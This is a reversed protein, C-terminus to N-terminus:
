RNSRRRYIIREPANADRAMIVRIRRDRLEYVVALSRGDETRGIVGRRGSRTAKRARHPDTVAEEAEWPEVGHRAIHEINADDWEFEEWDFM